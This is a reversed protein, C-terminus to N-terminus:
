YPRQQLPIRLLDKGAITNPFVKKAEEAFPKEHPYRGSYHTLVLQHVKSRQALQAAETATMHAHKKALAHHCHLYTSECLLLDADQALQYAAHCPRTDVVYSFTLAPQWYSVTDLAVGNYEGETLLKKVCPGQIGAAQLKEPYFRRKAPQTIRWGLNTVSHSLFRAECHMEGISFTTGDEHIPHPIVELHQCCQTSHLLADFYAQGKAPYYCHIPHQVQDANLCLIMSPFGLCHDGHFHSIFLHTVTSPAIEAFIFQRQTGEGPDFLLGLSNWRLLYAGHNRRRTHKQSATGFLTLDRISM